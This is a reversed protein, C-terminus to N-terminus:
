EFAVIKFVFFIKKNKKERSKIYILNEVNEFFFWITM